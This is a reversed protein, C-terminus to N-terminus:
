LPPIAIGTLKWGLLGDRSLTFTFAANPFEPKAVTVVFQNFSNYHQHIVLKERDANDAQAPKADQDSNKRANEPLDAQLMLAVSEPTVLVDVLPNVFAAAFMKAFANMGNDSKNKLLAQSMDHNLSAKLSDKLAPYDIYANLAAADHAKAAQQMQRITHYPTLYFCIALILAIGAAIFKKM